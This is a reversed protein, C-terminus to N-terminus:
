THLVYVRGYTQCKGRVYLGAHSPVVCVYFLSVSFRAGRSPVSPFGLPFSRWGVCEDRFVLTPCSRRLRVDFWPVRSVIRCWSREAKGRSHPVCCNYRFYSRSVCIRVQFEAAQSAGSAGDNDSFPCRSSVLLSFSPLLPETKVGVFHKVQGTATFM